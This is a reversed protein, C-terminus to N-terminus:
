RVMLYFVQGAAKRPAVLATREQFRIFYRCNPQMTLVPQFTQRFSTLSTTQVSGYSRGLKGLLAELQPTSGEITISSDRATVTMLPITRGGDGILCSPKDAGELKKLKDLRDISTEIGGEEEVRDLLDQLKDAGGAKEILDALEAVTFPVLRTLDDTLETIDSVGAADVADEVQEERAKLAAQYVVFVFLGFFLVQLLFDVLIFFFVDDRRGGRKAVVAKM